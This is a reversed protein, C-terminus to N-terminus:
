KTLLYQEECDNLLSLDFLGSSLGYSIINFQSLLEAFENEDLSTTAQSQRYLDGHEDDSAANESGDGTGETLHPEGIDAVKGKVVQARGRRGRGQVGAGRAESQLDDGGEPTRLAGRM